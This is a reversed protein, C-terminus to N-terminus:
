KGGFRLEGGGRRARRKGGVAGEARGRDVDGGKGDGSRQGRGVNGDIRGREEWGSRRRRRWRQRGRESGLGTRRM